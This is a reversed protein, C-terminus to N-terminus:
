KISDSLAQSTMGHRRCSSLMREVLERMHEEVPHSFEGGARQLAVFGLRRMFGSTKTGLTDGVVLTKTPASIRRFSAPDSSRPRVITPSRLSPQSSM